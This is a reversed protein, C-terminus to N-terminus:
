DGEAAQAEPTATAPRGVLLLAWFILGALAGWAATHWLASFFLDWGCATRVNNVVAQCDRTSYSFSSGPPRPLLALLATSNAIAAAGLMFLLPSAWSMRRYLAYLPLGVVLTFVGLTVSFVSIASLNDLVIEPWQEASADALSRWSRALFLPLVPAVALRWAVSALPRGYLRERIM